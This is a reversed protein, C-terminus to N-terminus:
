ALRQHVRYSNRSDEQLAAPEPGTGAALSLTTLCDRPLGMASSGFVTNIVEHWRPPPTLGPTCEAFCLPRPLTRAVALHTM